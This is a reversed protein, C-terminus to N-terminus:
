ATAAASMMTNKRRCTGLPSPPASAIGAGSERAHGSGCAIEHGGCKRVREPAGRPLVAPPAPLTNRDLGLDGRVDLVAVVRRADGHAQGSRQALRRAVDRVRDF